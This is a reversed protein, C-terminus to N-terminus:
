EKRAGAQADLKRAKLAREVDDRNEILYRHIPPAADPHAELYADTEAM